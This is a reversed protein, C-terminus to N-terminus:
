TGANLLDRVDYGEPLDPDYGQPGWNIVSISAAIGYLKKATAMMGAYGAPPLHKPNEKSGGTRPRDSDYLLTVAKGEFAPLWTEKFVECGPVALINTTDSLSPIGAEAEPVLNGDSDRGYILCHEELAMADFPGECLFVDPKHEEWLHLGFLFHEFNSTSMLRRKKAAYDWRYLNNINQVDGARFGYTPLMWTGDVISKVWGWRQLTAPQIRRDAAVETMEATSVQGSAHLKRVFTWANGNEPCTKCHFQGTTQSVFFKNEGGCFPCIGIADATGSWTLEIKHFLYPRLEHPTDDKKPM